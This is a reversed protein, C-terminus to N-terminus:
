SISGESFCAFARTATAGTRSLGERPLHWEVTRTEPAPRDRRPQYDRSPDLVLERILDGNTAM